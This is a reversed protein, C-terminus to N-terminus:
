SENVEPTFRPKVSSLKYIQSPISTLHALGLSPPRFLLDTSSKIMYLFPFFSLFVDATYATISDLSARSSAELVLCPIILFSFAYVLLFSPISLSVLPSYLVSFVSSLLPSALSSPPLTHFSSLQFPSTSPSSIFLCASVDVKYNLLLRRWSSALSLLCLKRLGINM